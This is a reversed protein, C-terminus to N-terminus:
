SNSPFGLNAATPRTRGAPPKERAGTVPNCVPGFRGSGDGVPKGDFWHTITKM